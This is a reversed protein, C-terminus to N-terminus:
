YIVLSFIDSVCTALTPFEIKKLRLEPNLFQSHLFFHELKVEHQISGSKDVKILEANWPLPIPQVIQCHLTFGGENDEIL